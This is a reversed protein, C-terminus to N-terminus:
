LPSWEGSLIFGAWFFPHSHEESKLMRLQVQRLAEARGTGAQLRRYFDIMLERTADDDVKWLSIMQSEAGALVLSRRLGYVGEGNQVEGIGTECASLVVLRTGHLDLGAAEMATLIGNEGHGDNLGNAGSLAIGSRLLPDGDILALSGNGSGRAASQVGPPAAGAAGGQKRLFFGHTAIHLISPARVQMVVSKLARAGTYVQAGKLISSVERAEENTGELPRFSEDFSASRLSAGAASSEKGNPTQKETAPLDFLPNAIVVPGQRSPLRERMRLLDRGSTLYTFTFSEDLYHNQEDTLAAYPVFNLSGDPSILVQQVNGLLKRLPRMVEEDVTRARAAFDTRAPNRLAARLLATDHDIKEADDLDAWAPPGTHKLIYAAYRPKGWDPASGSIKLLPKYLFMEVLASNEPIAKQVAEITVGKLNLTLSPALTSIRSELADIEEKSRRVKQQYAAEDNDDASGKLELEALRTRAGRLKPLLEKDEPNPSKALASLQESVVDLVRGKRQLITTLALRAAEVDNPASKLHLSVMASTGNAASAMYRRKEDETGTAIMVLLRHESTNIGETLLAVARKNDGKVQYFLALNALVSSIDPHGPLHVRRQVDLARLFHEEAAKLDGAQWETMALNNLSRGAEPSNPGETKERLALARMLLPRARAVDGMTRYLGGLNDLYTALEANDPEPRKEISAIAQKYLEEARANDGMGEYASALNNIVSTTRPHDPAYRKQYIDLARRFLEEAHKYDGKKLYINGLFNLSQGVQPNDRGLQAERLELAKEYLRQAVDYKGEYDNIVGLDHLAKAYLSRTDGETQKKFIEISHEILARARDFDGKDIYTQGIYDECFATWMELDEGAFNKRALELAQNWLALAGDHDGAAGKKGADLALKQFQEYFEKLRQQQQQQQQAADQAPANAPWLTLLAALLICLLPWRTYPAAHAARGAFHSLTLPRILELKM